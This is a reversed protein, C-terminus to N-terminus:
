LGTVQYRMNVSRIGAEEFRRQMAAVPEALEAALAHEGDDGREVWRDHLARAAERDGTLQIREMEQLNGRFVATAETVEDHTDYRELEARVLRQREAEEGGHEEAATTEAATQPPAAAATEGRHCCWLFLIMLWLPPRYRPRDM